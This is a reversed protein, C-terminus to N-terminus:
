RLGSMFEGRWPEYSRNSPPRAEKRRAIRLSHKAVRAIGVWHPTRSPAATGRIITEIIM